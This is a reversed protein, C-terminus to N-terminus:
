NQKQEDNLQHPVWCSKVKRMKLYDHIIREITGRSLATKAIIDNYTSHPDNNIVQRVLEINVDTLKSIPRGFQSDDNINERGEHFHKAWRAVTAYSPANSGLATTLEKHITEANIGLFTRIKIYSRHFENDM